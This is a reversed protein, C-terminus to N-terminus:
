PSRGEREPLAPERNALARLRRLREGIAQESGHATPRYYSRGALERPLCKMPAVGEPFDHAYLYGDAYGLGQMM